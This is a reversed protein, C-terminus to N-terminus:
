ALAANEANVEFAALQHRGNGVPLSSGGIPNGVAGNVAPQLSHNDEIQGRDANVRTGKRDLRAFANSCVM